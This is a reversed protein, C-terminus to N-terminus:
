DCHNIGVDFKNCILRRRRLTRQFRDLRRGVGDRQLPLRRFVVASRADLAVHQLFTGLAGVLPGLTGSVDAGIIRLRRRLVELFTLLIVETHHGDVLLSLTFWKNGTRRDFGFIRETLNYYKKAQIVPVGLAKM